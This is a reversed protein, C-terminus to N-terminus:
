APPTTVPLNDGPTLTVWRNPGDFEACFYELFGRSGWHVSRIAETAVAVEALWCFRSSDRRLELILHTPKCQIAHGTASRVVVTTPLASSDIGLDSALKPPLLTRDAATDLLGDVPLPRPLGWVLVPILPRYTGAKVETYPFRM